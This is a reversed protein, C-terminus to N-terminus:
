EHVDLKSRLRNEAAALRRKVTAASVDCASAVENITLGELRHLIWPEGWKRPIRMLADQIDDVLSATQSDTQTPADEEAAHARLVFRKRGRLRNHAHRVAIKVLWLRVQEPERLQPLKQEATIFTEQVVDDVELDDALLRYAVGAIYRAHAKYFAYFAAEDGHRIREILWADDAPMSQIKLHPKMRNYLTTEM